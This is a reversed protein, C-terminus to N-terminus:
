RGTEIRDFLDLVIKQAGDTSPLREEILQHQRHSLEKRNDENLLDRLQSEAKRFVRDVAGDYVSSDARYSSLVTYLRDTEAEPIDQLEEVEEGLIAGDFPVGETGANLGQYDPWHSPSLEPLLVVPVEYATAEYISMISAPCILLPAADLVKLYRDHSLFDTEYVTDVQQLVQENGVILPRFGAEDFESLVDSLENLVIEAYMTAQDVSVIPSLMGAFSVILRSQNDSEHHTDVVPGVMKTTDFVDPSLGDSRESPFKQVYSVDSIEYTSLMMEHFDIMEIEQSYVKEIQEAPNWNSSDIDNTRWYWFLSDVLATFPPDDLSKAEIIPEPEMSSLVVNPEVTRLVQKTSHETSDIIDSFLNDNNMAFKLATREGYFLADVDTRHDHISKMISIAKSVPGFGYGQACVLLRM